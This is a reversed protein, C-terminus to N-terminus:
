PPNTSALLEPLPPVILRYGAPVRSVVLGNYVMLLKWNDQTKYFQQSIDRLDMDKPVVFVQTTTSQQYETYYSATVANSYLIGQVGKQVARVYSRDAIQVGFPVQDQQVLGLPEAILFSETLAKDVVAGYSQAIQTTGNVVALLTASGADAWALVNQAVRAPATIFAVAQQAITNANFAWTAAADAIAAGWDGSVSTVAPGPGFTPPPEETLPVAAVQAIVRESKVGAELATRSVTVNPRNVSAVDALVQSVVSFEIEWECDYSNHWTQTFNTIHGYRILRDWSMRIVRGYRRMRDVLAVLDSTSNVRANNNTANAPGESSLFKEKWYGRFTIVGEEPGLM